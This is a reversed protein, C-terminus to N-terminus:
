LDWLTSNLVSRIRQIKGGHGLVSATSIDEGPLIDGFRSLNPIIRETGAVAIDESQGRVEPGYMDWNRTEYPDVTTNM